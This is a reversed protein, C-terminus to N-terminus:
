IDSFIIMDITINRDDIYYDASIKRPNSGYKKIKSHHNENICDLRIGHEKCFLIADDLCSGVRCTYLIIINNKQIEKIFNIMPMNPEGVLPYAIKKTLTGDFDIAFVANKADNIKNM